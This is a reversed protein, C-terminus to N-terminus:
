TPRIGIEGAYQAVRVLEARTRVGLKQLVRARRAEITRLSVRCLKAIETNTHGLVLYRLVEREKETLTGTAPRRIEGPGEGSGSRDTTPADGGLGLRDEIVSQLSPQVYQVGQAVARLGALFEDSSATKLAYGRVGAGAEARGAAIHRRQLDDDRDVLVFIGARPFHNQLAAVVQTGRADPLSLDTVVVDPRVDLALAEAVSSAEAVIQFGPEQDLLACVGARVILKDDVVLLRIPNTSALTPMKAYNTIATDPAITPSTATM